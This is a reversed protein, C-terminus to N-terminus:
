EEESTPGASAALEFSRKVLKALEERPELVLEQTHFPLGLSMAENVSQKYIALAADVDLDYEVVPKGPQGIVEWLLAAVPVLLCRSRLDCGQESALTAALLSLAALVTRAANDLEPKANGQIPFHLRRLAPLSLVTTQMAKTITMGGDALSPTVNGHNLESPKGEKGWLVAKTKEKAALDADLTWNGDKARYITGAQKMIQLPDIRSSTKIGAQADIGVIESVLARAFKAGSGGRPGTSDWMGFILATPCLEFLATANRNSVDILHKGASSERFRVGSLTSDRLIADAIRHPAQLSTIRGVEPVLSNQFDVVIVPLPLSGSEWAQQLALEMRNAQSQVSDLLVCDVLVDNIRRKETAYKGGEYTPPFVKDGSGGAPQLETIRRIAAGSLVASKLVDLTLTTM